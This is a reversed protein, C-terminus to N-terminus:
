KIEYQSYDFKALLMVFDHWNLRIQEKKSKLIEFEEDTLSVHIGKM